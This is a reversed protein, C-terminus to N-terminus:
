LINRFSLTVKGPSQLYVLKVLHSLKCVPEIVEHIVEFADNGINTLDRQLEMFGYLLHACPGLPKRLCGLLLRGGNLLNRGGNLLHICCHKM